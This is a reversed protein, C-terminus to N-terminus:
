ETVPRVSFGYFRSYWLILSHFGCGFDLGYAFQSDNKVDTASWYVASKGVDSPVISNQCKGAAPMFIQTGNPGTIQYGQHHRQSVWTWTCKELLEEFEERTPTRWPKGWQANAVDYLKLGSITDGFNKFDNRYHWGIFRKEAFKYTEVSYMDKVSTEGWAFYDGYDEPNNAGVNCTAWKVSLGLDVWEHGNCIGRLADEESQSTQEEEGLIITAEDIDLTSVEKHTKTNTNNSNDVRANGKEEVAENSLLALFDKIAQPRDSRRFEMSKYVADRTQQSIMDDLEPIGDNIIVTSEPPTNGSLLKYLTAGLAYIDTAPTFQQVSNGMQEIPAYGPTKGLLTSTNEGEVSDYQKSVGFDILIVQGSSDVMINGPKIDLHLRNQSHVYDLAEAAQRIYSLAEHEPLRGRQKVKEDLSCGDIYDMVYYASNNEAFVDSVRVIHPHNMRSLAVAEDIFKRMLREVLATKSQTGVSISGTEEDRNCFDKVFFEKIALRKRLM